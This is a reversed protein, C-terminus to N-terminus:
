GLAMGGFMVAISSIDTRQKFIDQSFTTISFKSMQGQPYLHKMFAAMKYNM